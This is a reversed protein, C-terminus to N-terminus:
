ALARIEARTGSASARGGCCFVACRGHDAYCEPHHETECALCRVVEDGAIGSRCFPCQEAPGRAQAVVPVDKPTIKRELEVSRDRQFAVERLGAELQEQMQALRREVDKNSSRMAEMHARHNMVLWCMITLVVVCLGVLAGNQVISQLLNGDM